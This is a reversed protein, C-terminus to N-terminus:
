PSSVPSGPSGPVSPRSGPHSGGGGSGRAGPHPRPHHRLVRRRHQRPRPAGLRRGRPRARGPRPRIGRARESAGREPAREGPGRRDPRVGRDVAPARDARPRLQAGRRIAARAPDLELVGRGDAGVPYPRIRRHRNGLRHGSPAGGASRLGGRHRLDRGKREPHRVGDRHPPSRRRGGHPRAGGGRLRRSARRLERQPRGSGGGQAFHVRHSQHTRARRGRFRPRDPGSWAAARAHAIRAGAENIEAALHSTGYDGQAISTATFTNTLVIDAGAELYADHVEAVVGPRTICLLDHNGRLPRTCHRFREGRYDAEDLGREQLM